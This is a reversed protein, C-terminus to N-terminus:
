PRKQLRVRVTDATPTDNYGEAMQLVKEWVPRAEDRKGAQDLASALQYTAGYHNPNRELVQRFQAAAAQADHQRYLADLGAQMMGEESVVTVKGLRARATDATPKDTSEEAMTLVKEWLPRAEDPKGAADLAAALQYTAGYHNPNRELVRRFQAAAAEPKHATRLAYLGAAMLAAESDPNSQGLRALAEKLESNRPDLEVARRYAAAAEDTRGQKELAQGLYFHPQALDPRLQVAKQAESLAKDLHGEYAELVSLNMYVFAYAPGLERAREFYHRASTMDGRRLYELGTNMWARPNNPGKRVTDQWLRLSDGWQWSRYHTLAVAPLCLLLCGAAFAGHRASPALQAAGRHLMWALLVSLGLSAAIYPRHDNIVESLAAFSSEPALTVFFWLTAFTVQPYRQTARLALGAWALLALLALWAHPAFLSTTYPFDHDVSLADPWLFLRVYYLLASWQSM